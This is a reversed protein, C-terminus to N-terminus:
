KISTIIKKWREGYADWTFNLAKKRIKNGMIGIQNPHEIFYNIAKVLALKDNLPVVFGNEGDEVLETVGSNFTGIIPLGCAAAEIQVQAFGEFNSPFVFVHNNDFLAQRDEKHVVGRNIVNYPLEVTDPLNGYGAIVLEAKNADIKEWAELLLPLGKRATLAGFFLFKIKGNTLKKVNNTTFTDVNTGFPNVRIRAADVGNDTYTKKVFESPVVIIDALRIEKKEIAILKALKPQIQEQWEPYLVKLENYIHEKSAPHGISVDLIFPKGLEKCREALLWSSTDFGIVVDSDLIQKDSIQQQFKKNRKYFVTESNTGNLKRIANLEVFPQTKLKRGDLAEIFRNNIKETLYSPLLKFLKGVFSKEAIAFGTYFKYLLGHKNLQKVLHHSYQTGPHAILVKM